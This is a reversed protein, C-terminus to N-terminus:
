RPFRNGVAVLIRRGRTAFSEKLEPGMLLYAGLAYVASSCIFAIAVASAYGTLDLRVLLVLSAGYTVTTLFGVRGVLRGYWNSPQIMLCEKCIRPVMILYTLSNLLVWSLAAGLIGWSLVLGVTIPLGIALALSLAQLTIKPKGMVLSIMYPMSLATNLFYGTCVLISPIFLGLAITSNFEYGLLLPEVFVIGALPPVAAFWQLDQLKSYQRRLGTNTEEGGLQTFAPLAAQFISWTIFTGRSVIGFLFSYPGLLGIPLFKSVVLRDAQQQFMGLISVISMHSAFEAENRAVVRSPLPVLARAGMLRWSVLLYAALALGFSAAFWWAVLVIGGGRWIIVVAGLQQSFGMAVDIANTWDMRQLGRLAGSYAGRPLASLASIGLIRVTAIADDRNIDAVHLWAQVIQPAAAFLAVSGVMWMTWFLSSATRVVAAVYPHDYREAKAISRVITNSVGLDMTSVVIANLSLTFLILGLADGGLQHFVLRASVLAAIINAGQGAVNWTINRTLRTM